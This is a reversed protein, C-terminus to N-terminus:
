ASTPSTASREGASVSAYVALRRARSVKQGCRASVAFAKPAASAIDIASAEGDPKRETEV